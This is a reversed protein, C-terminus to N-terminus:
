KISTRRNGRKFNRGQNKKRLLAERILKRNRGV